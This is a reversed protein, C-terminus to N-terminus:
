RERWIEIDNFFVRLRAQDQFGKVPKAPSDELKTTVM